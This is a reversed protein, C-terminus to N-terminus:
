VLQNLKAGDVVLVPATEDTKIEALPLTIEFTTGANLVSTFSIRGNQAEVLQRCLYLGLGIGKGRHSSSSQYFRNFISGICSSDIGIGNDIVQIVANGDRETAIIEVAGGKKSFKLANSVLNMIIRSLALEDALVSRATSSWKLTIENSQAIPELEQVCSRFLSPLNTPVLVLTSSGAEHKYVDLINGISQLLNKNSASIKSLIDVHAPSLAGITGGILLGLLRQAGYIPTRLDHALMAIFEERQELLALRREHEQIEVEKTIDRLVGTLRTPKGNCDFFTKGKSSIQRITGNDLTVGFEIDYEAMGNLSAELASSVKIRDEEVIRKYISKLDKVHPSLGCIENVRQDWDFISLEIDWSYVGIQSASLALELKAQAERADDASKRILEESHQREMAYRMCRIMSESSPKGKVLYDQAGSKVAAIAIDRDDLGTLIIIPIQPFRPRIEKLSDLDKSDPLSLDLLVVNFSESELKALGDRLSETWTIEVNDCDITEQLLFADSPNDEILLARIFTNVM